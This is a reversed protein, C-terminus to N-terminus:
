LPAEPEPQNLWQSLAEAKDGPSTPAAYKHRMGKGKIDDTPWEEGGGTQM